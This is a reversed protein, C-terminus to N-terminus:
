YNYVENPLNNLFHTDDNSLPFISADEIAPTIVQARKREVGIGNMRLMRLQRDLASNLQLYFRERERKKTM